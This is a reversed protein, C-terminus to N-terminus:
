FPWLSDIEICGPDISRSRGGSRISDSIIRSMYTMAAKIGVLRYRAPKPASYVVELLQIDQIESVAHSWFDGIRTRSGAPLTRCVSDIADSIRQLYKPTNATSISELAKNYSNDHLTLVNHLSSLASLTVNISQLMEERHLRSFAAQWAGFLKQELIIFKASDSKRHDKDYSLRQFDQSICNFKAEKALLALSQTVTQIQIRRYQNPNLMGLILDVACRALPSRSEATIGSLWSTVAPSVQGNQHFAYHIKIINDSEYTARRADRFEKISRGEVVTVIEALICGFAWIDLARGVQGNTWDEYNFSEPGLYDDHGGRLRSKSDEDVPKLKSLGFDAILFTNNKVLINAPRLDHHYGILSISIDGDTLNFNHIHKLADALGYIGEYIIDPESFHPELLFQKLDLPIFPFLFNRIGYPAYSGLFEVINPHQLEKLLDLVARENSGENGDELEKRAM